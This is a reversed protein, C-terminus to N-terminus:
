SGSCQYRCDTNGANPDKLTGSWQDNGDISVYLTVEQAFTAEAFSCLLLTGIVITLLRSSKFHKM